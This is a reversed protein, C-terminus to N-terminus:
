KLWKDKIPGVVYFDKNRWASHGHYYSSLDDVFPPTPHSNFEGVNNYGSFKPDKKAISQLDVLFRGGLGNVDDNCGWSSYRSNDHDKDKTFYEHHKHASMYIIPHTLDYVELRSNKSWEPGAFYPYGISNVGRSSLGAGILTWTVGGDRSELEYFADDTDGGHADGCDSDPGYGGDEKFLFVWKIGILSITTGGRTIGGIDMKRVQFLTVPEHVQRAKEASDFILYPRFATALENELSDILGDQDKDENPDDTQKLFLSRALKVQLTPKVVIEPGTVKEYWYYGESSSGDWDGGSKREFGQPPAIYPNAPDYIKGQWTVKKDKQNRSHKLGLITWRPLRDVLSWDSFGEGTSEYWYYGQGSDAGLDGGHQKKFGYGPLSEPGSVPDYGFVTIGTSAQNVPHKLGLVIGPPLNYSAPNSEPSDQVMWWDYGRHLPSGLDGGHMLQVPAGAPASFFVMYNGDEIEQNLNHRLGLVLGPVSLASPPQYVCGPMLLTTLVSFLVLIKLTRSKM